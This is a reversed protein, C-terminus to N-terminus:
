WRHNRNTLTNSFPRCSFVVTRNTKKRHNVTSPLRQFAQLYYSQQDSLSIHSKESKWYPKLDETDVPSRRVTTDSLISLAKLLDPAVRITARSIDLNEVPNPMSTKKAFKRRISNWTLYIAKNRRKEAISSKLHKQISLRWM